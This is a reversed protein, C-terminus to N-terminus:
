FIPCRVKNVSSNLINLYSRYSLTVELGGRLQSAAKLKSVNADYSIGLGWQYYDFKVVPIVADNWRYFSGVAFSVIEDDGYQSLDHSYLFGGQAQSNGGQTFYDGYVVFKDQDGTPISLGFNAVFKRNLRVDNTKMFAVKPRTVHFAGIGVYYRTDSGIVSSYSLGVTLDYYTLKTNNFTQNTPNTASYAGNVFQDDFQLKTPDFSQQVAGAMVGGSIYSDKEGNVSKHFNLVPLIQTKSFKSDGAQDNTIQLGLTVFDYTNQGLSFKLESGLAQTQYPTTVSEWQNRYAATIRIDGQFLGALAPNRLLPLEYFQSFNIDQATISTFCCVCISLSLYKRISKM